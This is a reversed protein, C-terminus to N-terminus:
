KVPPALQKGGGAAGGPIEIKIISTKDHTEKSCQETSV